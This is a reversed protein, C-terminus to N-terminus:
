IIKRVTYFDRYIKWETKDYNMRKVSLRVSVKRAVLGGQMLHLATFTSGLVFLQAHRGISFLWYKIAMKGLTQKEETTQYYGFHKHCWWWWWRRKIFFNDFRLKYLTCLHCVFLFCFFSTILFDIHTKTYCDPSSIVITMTQKSTLLTTTGEAAYDMNTAPVPLYCNKCYMINIRRFEHLSLMTWM